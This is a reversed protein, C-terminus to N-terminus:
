IKKVIASFLSFNNGIFGFGKSGMHNRPVLHILAYKARSYAVYYLRILDQQTRELPTFNISYKIKRYKYLDEEIIASENPKDGKLRLGYVFVFPFELGKAQHITMIPLRDPPCIIEEDEPDNLGETSLLGIFSNYFNQRWRFSIEGNNKSSMKLLGRTSGPTDYPISSYKEFLQTLKGLRYSREPDDLWDSFPPHALIRYLIESININLREGLNRKAISKISCDVYKRLEPSESAVNRYTDVWRNVLRQINENCVKRLANQKPDIITIFAGLAAMVEEQELFKRSRPNYVEIGVKNLAKKFPEAWNRNERVSKMLLACDSPKSVVGEDLLYRVFNAFNNATEEITRGTIYAVAPYNGSIDSKPNLEPKDKVRAGIKQMVPFSTIFKNCYNVIERHSRYNNNLFVTNVRELTIGWERHCANGFNVMCEVTGGRFRYLAQDDDGVVCLNHTNEAMKFYIAEQIPNTDQYEDVLVHSIGPHRLSGDGKIFLEGLKTNLFELFKKQLHSFDCRHHIELLQVYNEYADALQVAWKEDSQKLEEIDILYEVIRNFLTTAVQTRGWRSNFSRNWKNELYKFHNWMDQYKHHHKVADSHEHVFLYQEIDDMLRYNEYGPYRYELMIQNCLSHLTGIYIDNVDLNRQLEPYKQYILYAYNSIRDKINKAAKETFTTIVISKPNVNDVFILKLTRIVLTETKGSGPGAIVWLPGQGHIVVNMQNEDLGGSPLMPHIIEMFENLDM